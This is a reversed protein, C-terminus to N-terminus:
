VGGTGDEDDSGPFAVTGGESGLLPKEAHSQYYGHEGRVSAKPSNAGPKLFLPLLDPTFPIDRYAHLLFVGFVITLFGSVTGIINDITMQQWEKFLIASCTMVATTFLVYYIPTVVSTNFIDLAKNLYNIQVSVCVVLCLLLVWGLPEKLVPEGAFLEKIAIGLGKVCSVSLSGIASCILVYVLVNSHGIRPGAVFILLSCSVLICVAFVIFGPDKLKEAMEQLTSVEEEQPAHIVMVTSGLVSLVCGIKGHINLRENLFYSSLVASVLVSLAGLPTVLTAPAFIYAAFNAAEGAAMSLLGAWWLWERLYAHGGQGARVSGRGSLKLLGKKKLIFSGGIFISSSIALALGIYFDHNTAVAEMVSQVVKDSSAYVRLSRNRLWRVKRREVGSHEARRCAM